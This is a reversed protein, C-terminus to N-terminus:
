WQNVMEGSQPVEYERRYDDATFEYEPIVSLARPSPYTFKGFRTMRVSGNADSARAYVTCGLRCVGTADRCSRVAVRVHNVCGAMPKLRHVISNLVSVIEDSDTADLRDTKFDLVDAAM